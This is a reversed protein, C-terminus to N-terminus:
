DDIELGEEIDEMLKARKAELLDLDKKHQEESSTVETLYKESVTQLQQEDLVSSDKDQAQSKQKKSLAKKEKAAKDLNKDRLSENEFMRGIYNKENSSSTYLAPSMELLTVSGDVGGVALHKGETTPRITHLAYDSVQLTLVPTSQRYMLDWVDVCGDMRTTFFVGARTPHWCGYTLHAKHYFTTYMPCSKFDEFWLRATWDGVSLFYKPHFPNRQISYVPGHHGNFTNAGIKEHQSKGKRNISLITGQETGIMYKAPGGVQPDYDICLGGLIGKAGGENNKPQLTLTEM